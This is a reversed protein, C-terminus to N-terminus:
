SRRWVQRDREGLLLRWDADLRRPQKTLSQSRAARRDAPQRTPRSGGTELSGRAPQGLTTSITRQPLATWPTALSGDTSHGPCGPRSGGAVGAGSGCSCSFRFLDALSCTLLDRRRATPQSGKGGGIWCAHRGSDREAGPAAPHYAPENSASEGPSAPFDVMVTSIPPSWADRAPARGRCRVHECGCDLFKIPHQRIRGRCSALAWLPRLGAVSVARGRPTRCRKLPLRTVGVAPRRGFRFLRLSDSVVSGFIPGHCHRRRDAPPNRVRPLPISCHQLWVDLRPETPDDAADLAIPHARHSRRPPRPLDARHRWIRDRHRPYADSCSHWSRM